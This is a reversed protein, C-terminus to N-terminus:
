NSCRRQLGMRAFGQYLFEEIVAYIKKIPFESEESYNSAWECFNGLIDDRDEHTISEAPVYSTPVESVVEVEIERVQPKPSAGLRSTPELKPQPEPDKAKKLQPHEARELKDILKYADSLNPVSGLKDRHEYCKMYRWATKQEFLVNAELWPLWEGHKLKAKQKTLDEGIALAESLAELGLTIIHAHRENIRNAIPDGTALETTM